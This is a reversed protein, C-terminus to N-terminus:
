QLVSDVVRGGPASIQPNKKFRNMLDFVVLTVKGSESGEWLWLVLRTGLRPGERLSLRM